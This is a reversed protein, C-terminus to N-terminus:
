LDNEKRGDRNEKPPKPGYFQYYDCKLAGNYLKRKKDAKRGFLKEFDEDSTIVYYSWTKFTPFHKGMGRYIEEAAKKELLREGYPPNTIIFGYEFRSGTEKYDLKQFHIKGGVGAIEAHKKALKLQYYDIDSCFIKLEIDNDIAERAEKRVNYWVKQDIFSWKEAAFEANLGPAINMGIMAAEIAITGSGCFPDLLARDKRWRSLMILAAALTEKIPAAGVEQRYGRKHLGHGSTDMTIIVNDNMFVAEIDYRPGTEEIWDLNYAAKLREAIAKKTIAQIDRLSFIKSKQSRANVIFSANKPLYKEWEIKKVNQFLEEFSLAKFEAMNLLIRDATRLMINSKALVEDDGKYYIRGNLTSHETVGIADLERALVSEIGFATTAILNYIM